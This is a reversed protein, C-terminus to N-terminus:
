KVKEIQMLSLELNTNRGFVPVDVKLKNASMDIWTVCGKFGSFPGDIINVSEGEIIYEAKSTEEIRGFIREIESQRLAVPSGNKSDTTFGAVNKFNRITKPLEGVLDAEILLYGPFTIKERTYKKGNKLKVENETPLVINNVYKDLGEAKLEKELSDRVSKEKGTVVRVAYWKMNESM